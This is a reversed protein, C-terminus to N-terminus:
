AATKWIRVIQLKEWGAQKGSSGVTEVMWGPGWDRIRRKVEEPKNQACLLVYAVGREEDLIEPIQELMRNAVVMGDEGGAYSLELLYSDQEFTTSEKGAPLTNFSQHRSLDPLEAPVYPPNFIFVDVSHSRVASALDCNVIDLFVSPKCGFDKIASEVTQSAAKCAFSNIDTGLTLVDHRGLVSSANAAAFALVVGSGVGVELILPPTSSAEHFRERLFAAESSSSITDLLLFSDEAPEYVRDFCVHSTSPTPLM